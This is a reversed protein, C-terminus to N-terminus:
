NSSSKAGYSWQIVLFRADSIADELVRNSVVITRLTSAHVRGTDYFAISRSPLNLNEDNGANRHLQINMGNVRQLQHSFEESTIEPIKMPPRHEHLKM